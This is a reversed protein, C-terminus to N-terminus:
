RTVFFSKVILEKEILPIHVYKLLRWAKTQTNKEVTTANLQVYWNGEALEPVVGEYRDDGVRKLVQTQTYNGQTQHFFSLTIMEPYQFTPLAKLTLLLPNHPKDLQLYAELRQNVAEQDQAVSISVALGDNYYDSAATVSNPEISLETLPTHVSKLLRWEKDTTSKDTKDTNLLVYWNGDILEPFVGQYSDDGVRKLVQTQDYGSQTHHLFSLTITEPYQYTPSAKLTLLLSKSVKDLQIHAKLGLAIAEKDRELTMNIALGSKYYDDAVMGDNSEIALDLTFFGAIVATLPFFIIFWVFPEKYWRTFIKETSM